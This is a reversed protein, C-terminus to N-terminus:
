FYFVAGARIPSDGFTRFQTGSSISKIATGVEFSWGVSELGPIFLEVGAFGMLEFGSQNNGTTEVSLVGAGAGMYFNLNDEPFIVRYIKAMASFKSSGTQTDLGISASLGLDAGPWYQLAISPLGISSQDKFGLGLRSTLDKAEASSTGGFLTCLFTLAFVISFAAFSCRSLNIKIM